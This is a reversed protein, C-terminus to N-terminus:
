VEASLVRDVLRDPDQEVLLLDLMRQRGLGSRVSEHLFTLLHDYYGAVNLLGIPKPHLDLTAWSLVEFLEELTGVGGPLAVLADAEDFMVRKRVTMDAVTRLESLADHAVERDSMHDPLVGIVHCGAALAADAVAGMLGVRAGGYVMDAGARGLASGTAAAAAAFAPDDGLRSACYV